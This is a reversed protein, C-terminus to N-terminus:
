IEDIITINDRYYFLVGAKLLEDYRKDWYKIDLNGELDNFLERPSYSSSEFYGETYYVMARNEVCAM